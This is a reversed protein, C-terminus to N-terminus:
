QAIAMCAMIGMVASADGESKIEIDSAALRAKNNDSLRSHLAQFAAVMGEAREREEQATKEIIQATAGDRLAAPLKRIAARLACEYTFSEWTRGMFSYKTDTIDHTDCSATYCSGHRTSTTWCTFRVIEGNM